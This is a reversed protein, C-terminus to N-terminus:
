KRAHAHINRAVILCSGGFRIPRRSSIRHLERQALASLVRAAFPRLQHDSRIRDTSVKGSSIGLRYPITRRFLIPLPLFGFVYTAFEVAYGCTELLRRLTSLTYRRFHGALVDEDSWLSQYAPVTAYLRGGPILLRNIETVFAHDDSVHEVVDFLGVAPLTGDLIGADKLTARVIHRISRKMANQVGAVGPEVLVVELGAQQLALAVYGNGGGVDFFVGPPPFLKTVELICRNRHAFWFSSDEVAFCGSNGEEPYSVNSVTRSQWWGDPGLTLNPGFKVVNM